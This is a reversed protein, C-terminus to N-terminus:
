GYSWVRPRPISDFERPRCNDIHIFRHDAAGRQHIGVGALSRRGFALQALSYAAEGSVRIDAARGYLHASHRSGGEARNHGPCRLGSSIPMPEDLDRRLAQLSHILEADMQSGDLGCAGCGCAFERADFNAAVDFDAFRRSRYAGRAVREIYESPDIM